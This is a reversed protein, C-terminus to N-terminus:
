SDGRNQKALLKELLRAVVKANEDTKRETESEGVTNLQGFIWMEQMQRTLSLVEEATRILAASESVIKLENLATTNRDTDEIAAFSVLTDFRKTLNDRLTEIRAPM